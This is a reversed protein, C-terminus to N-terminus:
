HLHYMTGEDQSKTYYGNGGGSGNCGNGAAGGTAVLTGEGMLYLTAGSAVSIAAGAGTEGNADGGKLTLTVGKKINIAVVDNGLVRFKSTGANASLELDSNVDYITNDQLDQLTGSSLPIHTASFRAQAPMAAAACLAAAVIRTSFNSLQFTSFRSGGTSSNFLQFTSFCSRLKEYLKVRLSM